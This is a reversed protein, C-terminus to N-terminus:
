RRLRRRRRNQLRPFGEESSNWPGASSAVGTGPVAAKGGCSAVYGRLMVVSGWRLVKDVVGQAGQGVRGCGGLDVQTGGLM